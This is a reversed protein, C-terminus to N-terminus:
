CGTSGHEVELLCSATAMIFGKMKCCSPLISYDFYNKWIITIYNRNYDNNYYSHAISKWKKDSNLANTEMM